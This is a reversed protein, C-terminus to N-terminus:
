PTHEVEGVVEGAEFAPELDVVEVVGVGGLFVAEEVLVDPDNLGDDM